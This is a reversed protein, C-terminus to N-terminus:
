QGGWLRAVLARIAASDLGQSPGDETVILRGQPTKSSWRQIKNAEYWALKKEWRAKYDPQDLMGCHEWVWTDGNADEITFDPWRPHSDPAVWMREFFYRIGLKQEADFLADAIIVESKSSVLDGRASRHILKDELFTRGVVGTPTALPSAVEVMTPADFLNTVRRAVESFFASRYARLNELGGQHLLVIRDVQRTLATYLMERTLLRSRSPLVLFVKGFESGQAKHVTLAYALELIPFGEEKFDRQSFSYVLEPQTAFQAKTWDPRKKAKFAEGVVIGIEGNAVYGNDTHKDAFHWGEREHNRICIVKDGYTIQEPSRPAIMRFRDWYPPGENSERAFKLLGSRFRAKIHRNLDLSGSIQNRHPTLIQWEEAKAIQKGPNFYAHGNQETAGLAISFSKEENAPDLNLEDCLVRDVVTRLETPTKWSVLKLREDQKGALISELVQDEGPPLDRGSFLDALQVDALALDRLPKGKATTAAHRRRVTLEAVGQRAHKRELYSILDVFPRGAGIPPLQRPDGVLILRASVSLADVLAALQDETLMSAEDVICTTVGEAQPAQPDTFYRGTFVDYRGYDKLFQALTKATEPRRTQQGLRVRAKGTPALLAVGSGVVKSEGLLHRLVTTKGTGAPGILASIRSNVIVHLASAKEHRAKEEETDESAIPGFAKDIKGRWDIQLPAHKAKLRDNVASRIKARYTDYRKLQVALGGVGPADDTVIEDKFDERCLKIAMADLAVPRTAPLQKAAANVSSAALLSHGENAAADELINVCAARLRRPDDAEDPDISCEKPLPHRKLIADDSFIGRDITWLGIPDVDFRDREYLLYPNELVAGSLKENEFWRLAQEKSLEFRSLLRLLAARKPEEKHLYEWRRRLMKTLKPAGPPPEQEGRFIRGAVEWPDDQESLKASMALAFLTGNFGEELASIASGFGPCPGNLKWLRNIQGDIWEIQQPWPGTLHKAAQELAAKCAVLSTIAVGHSVHESAYSFHHRAEDPPCALFRAPDISDDQEARVLVDHYPLVIGGIYHGPNAADPRISHQIPREWIMSCIHDKPASPDYDYECVDGKHALMGVAVIIRRDDDALPTRKAYFFTLSQQPTCRSAFGDLLARQNTPDQVWSNYKLFRPESPERDPSVDLGLESAIEYASERLLWRFPVLTAGWAPVRVYTPRIHEHPKSWRSYDMVVRLSAQRSSLFTGREKFCPPKKDDELDAIEAGRIEDEIADNRKEAIGRL